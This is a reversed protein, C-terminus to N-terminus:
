FLTKGFLTLLPDKSSLFHFNQRNVEYGYSGGSGIFYHLRNSNWVCQIINVAGNFDRTFTAAHSRLCHQCLIDPANFFCVSVQLKCQEISYLYLIRYSTYRTPRREFRGSFSMFSLTSNGTVAWCLAETPLIWNSIPPQLTRPCLLFILPLRVMKIVCYSLSSIGFMMQETVFHKTEVPLYESYMCWDWANSHVCQIYLHLVLHM